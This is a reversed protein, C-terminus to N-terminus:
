FRPHQVLWDHILTTKHTKLNDLLLHLELDLGVSSEVQGLFDRFEVSHHRLARCGIVTGAKVDLAAFRDLTGPRRYDHTAREAQGPRM